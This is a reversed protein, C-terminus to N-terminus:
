ILDIQFLQRLSKDDCKRKREPRWRNRDLFGDDDFDIKSVSFLEHSRKKPFHDMENFSFSVEKPLHKPCVTM